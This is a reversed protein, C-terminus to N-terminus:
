KLAEKLAEIFANTDSYYNRYARRLASLSDVSILVADKVGEQITREIAEYETTAKVVESQTYGKIKLSQNQLDLEVLFYHARQLNPEETVKLATRYARLHKEVQLRHAYDRLESKLEAPNHPTNPVLPANERLAIASGMLSFFRLWEDAGRSSKLAESRFEGVTEVATAWAHQLISRFQMEIKLDNYTDVKDSKYRYIVHFGRYGSRKPNEIYDDEDDWIHKLKSDRYLTVLGNVQQVSQVIVRCVVIDQMQSLNLWRFRALKHYISSFRKLRQAVIRRPDVAKVQLPPHSSFYESSVFPIFAM